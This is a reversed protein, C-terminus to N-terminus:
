RKEKKCRRCYLFKEGDAYSEVVEPNTCDCFTSDNSPNSIYPSPSPGEEVQNLFCLWTSHLGVYGWCRIASVYIIDSREEPKRRVTYYKDIYRKTWGSLEGMSRVFLVSSFFVKDGVELNEVEERTLYHM